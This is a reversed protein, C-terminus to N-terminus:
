GCARAIARWGLQLTELPTRARRLVTSLSGREGRAYGLAAELLEGDERRRLATRLRDDGAATAEFADAPGAAGENNNNDNHPPPPPPPPTLLIADLLAATPTDRPLREVMWPLAVEARWSGRLARMLLAVSRAARTHLRRRAADRTTADALEANSSAVSPNWVHAAEDEAAIAVASPWGCALVADAVDAAAHGAAPSLADLMREGLVVRWLARLAAARAAAVAADDSGGAAAAESPPRPSVAAEWAALHEETTAAAWPADRRRHSAIAIMPDTEMLLEVAYRGGDLHLSAVERMRPTDSLLPRYMGSRSEDVHLARPTGPPLRIAAGGAAGAGAGATATATDPPRSAAAHANWLAQLQSLSRCEGTHGLLTGAAAALNALRPHLEYPAGDPPASSLYKCRPLGQAIPFWDAGADLATLAGSARREYHSVLPAAASDPLRGPEFAATAPDYLLLDFVERLLMEVCDPRPPAGRYGHRELVNPPKFAHVDAANAALVELARAFGHADDARGRALVRRAAAAVAGDSTEEPTFVDACWADAASAAASSSAWPPAAPHGGGGGHGGGSGLAHRGEDTLCDIHSDLSLLFDRLCERSSAREWVYRLFVPVVAASTAAAATDSGSSSGAAATHTATRDVGSSILEVIRRYRALSVGTWEGDVKNTTIRCRDRLTIAVEDASTVRKLGLALIHGASSGTLHAAAHSRSRTVRMDFTGPPGAAFLERALLTAPAAVPTHGLSHLNALWCSASRTLLGVTPSLHAHTARLITATAKADRASLRGTPM